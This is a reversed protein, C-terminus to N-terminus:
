SYRKFFASLAKYLALSAPLFWNIILLYFSRELFSREKIPSFVVATPRLRSASRVRRRKVANGAACM